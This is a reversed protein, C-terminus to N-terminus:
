KHIQCIKCNEITLKILYNLKNIFLGRREIEFQLMKMGIDLFMKHFYEVISKAEDEFLIISEIM